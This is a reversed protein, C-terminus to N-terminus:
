REEDRRARIAAIANLLRKDYCTICDQYYPVGHECSEEPYGRDIAEEFAQCCEERERAVAEDRETRSNWAAIADAETVFAHDPMADRDYGEGLACFCEVNGCVVYFREEGSLLFGEDGCFPCPLLRGVIDGDGAM